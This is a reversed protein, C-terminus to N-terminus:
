KSKNESGFVNKIKEEVLKEAAEKAPVLFNRPEYHDKILFLSKKLTGTYTMRFDTAINVKCVNIQIAKRILEEPVGKTNHINGGYANFTNIIDDSISSAGHLVLPFGPNNKQIEKLIDWKLDPIEDNKFKTTGHGTGVSVALSDIGTRNIFDKALEPDTFNGDKHKADLGGLEGEVTCGHSHAYIVVEKTQKVNEEYPSNGADIMVSTFGEDICSKCLDVGKGHDLHIAFPITIDKSVCLIQEKLNGPHMFNRSGESIAIIVPSKLKEAAELVAQVMAISDVNFAGIAYHGKYADIFMQKTNVLPM